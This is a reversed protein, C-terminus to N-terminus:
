RETQFKCRARLRAGWYYFLFPIPMMLAAALALVSTAWNVGLGEYMQLIFLPIAAALLYRTISSAAQASAGYVPGYVDTMYASNSVYVMRAGWTIFVSAVMPCIWHIGPQLTWAMWILGAPLIVGGVMASQLSAEPPPKEKPVSPDAAPQKAAKLEKAKQTIILTAPGAIVGLLLPIFALGQQTTTFGYTMQYIEGLCAVLAYVLAFSFGAYLCVLSVILETFLMQLPRLIARRLFNPVARVIVVLQHGVTRPHLAHRAKATAPVAAAEAAKQLASLKTERMFLLGPVVIPVSYCLYIWETWQWDLHAVIPYGILASCPLM